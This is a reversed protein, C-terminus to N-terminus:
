DPQTGTPSPGHVQVTLHQVQTAILGQLKRVALPV